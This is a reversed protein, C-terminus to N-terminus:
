LTRRAIKLLAILGVTAVLVGIVQLQRITLMKEFFPMPPLTVHGNNEVLSMIDGYLKDVDDPLHIKSSPASRKVVKKHRIKPQNSVPAQDSCNVQWSRPAFVCLSRFYFQPLSNIKRQRLSALVHTAPVVAVGICRKIVSWPRREASCAAM